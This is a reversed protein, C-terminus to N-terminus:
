GQVTEGSPLYVRGFYVHRQYHKIEHMSRFELREESDMIAYWPHLTEKCFFRVLRSSVNLEQLGLM